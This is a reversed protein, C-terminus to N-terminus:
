AAKSAGSLPVVQLLGTRSRRKLAPADPAVQLFCDCIELWMLTSGSVIPYTSWLREAKAIAESSSRQNGGLLDIMGQVLAYLPTRGVSRRAHIAELQSTAWPASRLVYAAHFATILRLADRDVEPVDPHRTLHRLAQNLREAEGWNASDVARFYLLRLCSVQVAIPKLPSIGARFTELADAPTERPRHHSTFEFLFLDNRTTLADFYAPDRLVGLVVKGATPVTGARIPLMEVLGIMAFLVGVARVVGFELGNEFDQLSWVWIVIGAILASGMPAVMGLAFRLRPSGSKMLPAAITLSPLNQGSCPAQVFWSMVYMKLLHQEHIAHLRPIGLLRDALKRTIVLFGLLLPLFVVLGLMIGQLHALFYTSSEESRGAPYLLAGLLLPVGIVLFRKPVVWFHVSLL